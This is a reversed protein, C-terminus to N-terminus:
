LELDNLLEKERSYYHEQFRTDDDETPIYVSQRLSEKLPKGEFHEYVDFANDVTAQSISDVKWCRRLFSDDVCRTNWMQFVYDNHQYEYSFAPSAVPSLPALATCPRGGMYKADEWTNAFTTLVLARIPRSNSSLLSPHLLLIDGDTVSEVNGSEEPYSFDKTKFLFSEYESRFQELTHIRKKTDDLIKNLSSEVKKM